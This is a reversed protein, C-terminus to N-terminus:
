ERVFTGSIAADRGCLLPLDLDARAALTQGDAALEAALAVGITFGAVPISGQTALRNPTAPDITGAASQAGAPVAQTGCNGADLTLGQGIELRASVAEGSQSMVLTAPASTGNDGNLTGAFTGNFGGAAQSGGQEGGIPAPQAPPLAAALTPTAVAPAGEVTPAPPAVTTTTRLTFWGRALLVSGVACTLLLALVLILVLFQRM